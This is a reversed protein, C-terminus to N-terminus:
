ASESRKNREATMRAIKGFDVSIFLGTAEARVHVEGDPDGADPSLLQSSCFIKRGEVRDVTAEFRLPIHLPTPRRYSISLNGTMGPNGSMAQAAGLVEDFAAAVLGGHVHGPPGEYAHGFTVDAIVTTGEVRLRMPPAMPNARGLLPSFDVHGSPPGGGATSAEAFGEYRRGFEFQGLHEATAELQEAITNLDSEPSRTDVMRDLILRLADGVRWTARRRPSLDEPKENSFFSLVAKPYLKLESM